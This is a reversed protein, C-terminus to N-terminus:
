ESSEIQNSCRVLSKLEDLNLNLGALKSNLGYFFASVKGVNGPNSAALRLAVLDLMPVILDFM